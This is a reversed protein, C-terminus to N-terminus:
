LSGAEHRLKQIEEALVTLSAGCAAFDRAAAKREINQLLTAAGVAGVNACAGKSYHALRGLRPGDAARIAAELAALQRATEDLLTDLIERMLDPDDLTVSRLQARDLVVSTDAAM